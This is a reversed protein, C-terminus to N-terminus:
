TDSDKHSIKKIIERYVRERRNFLILFGGNTILFSFFFLTKETLYTCYVKQIRKIKILLEDKLIKELDTVPSIDKCQFQYAEEWTNEVKKVGYYGFPIFSLAALIVIAGVWPVLRSSKIYKESLLKSEKKTFKIEKM